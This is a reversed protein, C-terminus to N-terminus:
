ESDHGGLSGRAAHEHSTTYEVLFRQGEGFSVFLELQDAALLEPFEDGASNPALFRLGM